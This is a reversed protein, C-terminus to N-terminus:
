WDFPDQRRGDLVAPNGPAGRQVARPARLHVLSRRTPIGDGLVDHLVAEDGSGLRVLSVDLGKVWFIGKAAEGWPSPVAALVVLRIGSASRATELDVFRM